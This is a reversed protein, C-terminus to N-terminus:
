NKSKCNCNCNCNSIASNYNRLAAAVRAAYVEMTTPTIYQSLPGAGNFADTIASSISSLADYAAGIGPQLGNAIQSLASNLADTQSGFVSSSALASAVAAVATSTISGTGDMADIAGSLSTTEKAGQYTSEFLPGVGRFENLDGMVQLSESLASVANAADNALGGLPGIIAAGTIDGLQGVANQDLAIQTGQIEDRSVDDLFKNKASSLANNLAELANKQCECLGWPDVNGVPNSMVFQYTNAGNIYGAPDQNIWRGLTPSYNRNRAYYLGTAPDLTMGQYLNNVEPVSGDGNVTITGYPSYVYQQIVQWVASLYNIIATTNWNADQLFYIRALPEAVGGGYSDRLIAANIYAASWVKQSSVNSAATGNTRTEIAQWQSDYYIYNIEGAPIGTGGQPYSETVRYRQDASKQVASSVSSRPPRISRRNNDRGSLNLSKKNAQMVM